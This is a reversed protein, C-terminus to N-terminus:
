GTEAMPAARGPPDLHTPLTRLIAVLAHASRPREAANSALARRFFAAVAAPAAPLYTRIDPVEVARSVHRRREPEADELPNVGSVAEYLVLSLSWLDFGPSPTFGQLAEPSMYMPTGHGLTSSLTSSPVHAEGDSGSADTDKPRSLVLPGHVLRALGFDLLKPTGDHTFGINSPKIDRHLVAAAHIAELAGGIARGLGWAETLALPGSSLKTSLTGGSLYEVLLFPHGQWTEVGHIQALNPHSVLAMLRAERRLRVSEEPSVYPLTKLAVLRDLALDVAKYVLGMGGAGIREQLLYKGGITQPLPSEALAGGCRSCAAETPAHVSGCDGCERARLDETGPEGHEREIPQGHLRHYGISMEVAAAVAALLQHDEATYPIGSRKEGLALLGVLSQSGDRLPILYRVGADVLWHRDQLPLQAHADPSELDCDLHGESRNVASVLFRDAPLPAVGEVPSLFVPRHQELLLVWVAQPHFASGIESRVVAALEAPDGVWRCRDVLMGLTRRADYAERFFRRDIRDLLGERRQLLIMGALSCTVLVLVGPTFLATGVDENRRQYTLVVLLLAPAGTIAIASYRTLAYHIAQRVIWRIDLARRAAVAYTVGAPTALLPPYILWGARHLPLINDFGPFLSWLLAWAVMPTTGVVLVWLLLSTRRRDEPLGLRRKAVLYGLAGLCLLYQTPWYLSRQSQRSLLELTNHAASGVPVVDAGVNAIVLVVGLGLSVSSLWALTRPGLRQQESNPFRAVFEWLAWPIFADVQVSLLGLLLGAGTWDVVPTRIVPDGFVSSVLLLATGLLTARVDEQGVIILFSGVGGFAVVHALLLPLRTSWLAPETTLTGLGLVVACVMKAGAFVILFRLLERRPQMIRTLV